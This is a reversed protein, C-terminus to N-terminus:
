RFRHQRRCHRVRLLRSCRRPAVFASAAVVIRGMLMLSATMSGVHDWGEETGGRIKKKTVATGGSLAGGSAQSVLSASSANASNNATMGEFPDDLWGLMDALASAAANERQKSAEKNTADFFSADCGGGADCLKRTGQPLSPRLKRRGTQTRQQLRLPLRRSRRQPWV